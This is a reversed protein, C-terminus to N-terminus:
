HCQARDVRRNEGEEEDGDDAQPREGPRQPQGKVGGARHGLEEGLGQLSGGPSSRATSAVPAPRTRVKAKATSGSAVGPRM